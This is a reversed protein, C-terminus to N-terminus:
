GLHKTALCLCCRTRSGPSLDWSRPQTRAPATHSAPTLGSPFPYLPFVASFPPPGPTKDHFLVEQNEKTECQMANKCQGGALLFSVWHQVPVPLCQSRLLPTWINTMRACCLGPISPSSRLLFVPPWAPAPILLTVELGHLCLGTQVPDGRLVSVSIM